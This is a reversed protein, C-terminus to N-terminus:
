KLKNAEIFCRMRIHGLVNVVNGGLIEKRLEILKRWMPRINRLDTSRKMLPHCINSLVIVVVLAGAGYSDVMLKVSHAVLDIVM